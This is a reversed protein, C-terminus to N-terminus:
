SRRVRRAPIGRDPIKWQRLAGLRQHDCAEENLRDVRM